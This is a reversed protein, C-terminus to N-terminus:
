TTTTIPAFIRRLGAILNEESYHGCIIRRNEEKEPFDPDLELDKVDFVRVNLAQLHEWSTTGPPMFVRKGYGLLTRITGMAQQRDSNFVGLDITTLFDLYEDLPIMKVIPHFRDGFLRKGQAIVRHRYAKEGYALPCHVHLQGDDRQSILDLMEAHGNSPLASNGALLRLPAGEPRNPIERWPVISNPYTFVNIYEGRIKYWQRCLVGDGPTASFIQPIRPIVLRRMLEICRHRLSTNRDRYVYLDGGWLIWCTKRLLWPQLILVRLTRSDTLGHIVIKEARLGLRLVEAFYKAGSARILWAPAQGPLPTEISAALLVHGRISDHEELFEFFIKTFKDYGGLHLTKIKKTDSMFQPTSNGRDYM